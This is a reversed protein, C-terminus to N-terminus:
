WHQLITHQRAQHANQLRHLHKSAVRIKWYFGDRTSLLAELTMTHQRAHNANQLGDVEARPLIIRGLQESLGFDEELEILADLIIVRV